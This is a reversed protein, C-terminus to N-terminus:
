PGNAQPCSPETRDLVLLVEMHATHPFQDVLTVRTLRWGGAVLTKVQAVSADLACAVYVIRRAGSRLAADLAAAPLGARPPDLVLMDPTERLEASVVKIDGSIFEANLGNARANWQADEVAAASLEIGLVRKVGARALVLAFFGAGCCWDQVHQAGIEAAASCVLQALVEAQATNVQFFSRPQIRFNVGAVRESIVGSGWLVTRQAGENVADNHGQHTVHTLTTIWPCALHVDDAVQQVLADASGDSVLEVLIEGTNFGKRLLLLRLLGEHRVPDHASAGHRRAAERVVRLLDDAEPFALLCADLDLIRDFRGAPHLGLAFSRDVGDPEDPLVWRRAGFSFEVRNRYRESSPAPVSRMEAVTLGAGSIITRLAAEKAGLQAPYSTDQWRCGGCVGFHTCPAVVKTPGASLTALRRAEWQGRRRRLLEAEVLDGPSGADLIVVRQDADWPPQLHGMPRGRADFGALLVPVRSGRTTAPASAEDAM